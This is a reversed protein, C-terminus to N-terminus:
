GGVQTLRQDVVQGALDVLVLCAAQGEREEDPVVLGAKGDAGVTKGGEALSTAPDGPKARLDLTLGAPPGSVEVRCRLRTWKVEAIRAASTPTPRTVTVVPVICEQPSLGGHEYEKGATYCSIGPALAIKVQPDWRWPVTMHETQAHPKLRACRGKRVETLHEPLEAKPLGGPLLLWGHDTVIQVEQWGAALLDDIREALARVEEMVRRALKWGQAHGYSDLSGSETWASGAPEGTEDGLLVQYGAKGLERRLTEITVKAGDEIVTPALELGSGLRSAVPSIAPKATGTVTPLAAWAHDVQVELGREQLAKALRQAVDFRLGDAFLICRGPEQHAGVAVRGAARAVAPHAAMTKQFAEVSERLWVGYLIKVAARVAAVDEAREVGALAELAAADVKWGVEVYQRTVAEPDAGGLPSQSREALEAVGAVARALPAQGLQAWVWERRPGHRQELDRVARRADVLSKGKLDTLATRLVAEQAENDQPWSSPQEFMGESQAPRARRLLGPLHPYRQPAEAYREWVIEWAGERRGLLTAASIEGDVSPDFGYEDRCIARFAEWEAANCAQRQGTPDDLWRLIQRSKDPALRAHIRAATLPADAQLGDVPEDALRDIARQLAARTETDGAVPIGLGGDASQLFAAITWDRGNRQTWLTGRYQLEALPQLARPCDEVARLEQRSVGPLYIMPAREPEWDPDHLSQAIMCKLWIAPGARTAPDYPGLTLLPLADRLRPVLTEWQREKDPWLVAAPPTQDARNYHAARKLARTLAEILTM